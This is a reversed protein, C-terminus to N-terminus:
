LRWPSDPDPYNKSSKLRDPQDNANEDDDEAVTFEGEIVPSASRSTPNNRSTGTTQGPRTTQVHINRSNKFKEIAWKAILLRLPPVFLLFGIGDTIFGPTLLLLGAILLFVGHIVSTLPLEGDNLATQAQNLTALGQYRLLGTGLFATLLIIALTPWLGIIDGVQIFTAIEAIPVIVFAGFLLYKM